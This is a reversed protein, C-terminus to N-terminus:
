RLIWGYQGIIEAKLKEKKENPYTAVEASRKDSFLSTRANEIFPSVDPPLPRDFIESMATLFREPCETLESFDFVPFGHESAFHYLANYRRNYIHVYLDSDPAQSYKKAILSSIAESKDRRIFIIPHNLSMATRCASVSHLHTVLHIEPFVSKMLRSAFTNGSRPFGILLGRTRKEFYCPISKRRQALNLLRNGITTDHLARDITLSAGILSSHM